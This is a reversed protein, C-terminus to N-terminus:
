DDNQDNGCVGGGVDARLIEGTPSSFGFNSNYLGGDPRFTMASPFSLGDVVTTRSGDRDIRIVKGGGGSM